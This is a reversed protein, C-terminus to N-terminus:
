ALIICIHQRISVTGKQEEELQAETQIGHQPHHFPRTPRCVQLFGLGTAEDHTVVRSPGGDVSVGASCLKLEQQGVQQSKDPIGNYLGNVCM